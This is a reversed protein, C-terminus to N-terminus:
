QHIQSSKQRVRPLQDCLNSVGEFMVLVHEKKM